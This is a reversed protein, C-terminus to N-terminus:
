NTNTDQPYWNGFSEAIQQEDLSALQAQKSLYVIEGVPEPQPKPTSFRDIIVVGVVCLSLVVIEIM